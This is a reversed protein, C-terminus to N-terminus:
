YAAGKFNPCNAQAWLLFQPACEPKNTKPGPMCDVYSSTPCKFGAPTTPTPHNIRVCIGSADPSKSEFACTLDDPCIIGKIGGCVIPVPTPSQVVIPCAPFQCNPGTRRVTTGDPCIRAEQTCPITINQTQFRGTLIYLITAVVVVIVLTALQKNM